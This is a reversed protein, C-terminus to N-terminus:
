TGEQSASPGEITLSDKSLWSRAEADAQRVATYQQACIRGAMAASDEMHNRTYALELGATWTVTHAASANGTLMRAM